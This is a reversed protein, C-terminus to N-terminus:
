EYHAHWIINDHHLEVLLLFCKILCYLAIPTYLYKYLMGWLLKPHHIIQSKPHFLSNWEIVQFFLFLFFLFFTRQHEFLCPELIIWNYYRFEVKSWAKFSGRKISYTKSTHLNSATGQLPCAKVQFSGLKSLSSHFHETQKRIIDERLEGDKMSSGQWTLVYLMVLLAFMDLLPFVFFSYQM